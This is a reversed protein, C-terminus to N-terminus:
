HLAAFVSVSAFDKRGAGFAYATRRCDPRPTPSTWWFISFPAPLPPSPTPCLRGIHLDLSAALLAEPFHGLQCACPPWCEQGMSSLPGSM